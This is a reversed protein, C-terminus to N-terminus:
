AGAKTTLSAMTITGSFPGAQVPDTMRAVGLRPAMGFDLETPMWGPSDPNDFNVVQPRSPDADAFVALVLCGPLIAARMGAMGPRVPVGELYPLGTGSRVPQLNLREGSQSIVRFEYSGRFRRGPDIADLIRALALVRRPLSQGAFIRATLRRDDLEFEVDTAPALGEVQVGPVFGALDDVALEVVRAARDIRTRTAAGTYAAAPRKGIQTVGAFDIYWGRPAAENLAWVAPAAPRAYHPGRRTAPLSGLREGVARAADTIITRVRVGGDDRYGKAAIPKGWGGNGGVVHYAARGAPTKGGSAIWGRLTQGALTITAAGAFEDPTAVDVDAWWMGWEPVQVRLRTVTAGNLTAPNM